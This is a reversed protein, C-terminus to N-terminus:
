ESTCDKLKRTLLIQRILAVILTVFAIPGIICFIWINIEKYTMGLLAALEQLALVCLDFVYNITSYKM